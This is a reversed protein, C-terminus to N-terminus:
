GGGSGEEGGRGACGSERSTMAVLSCCMAEASAKARLSSTRRVAAGGGCGVGWGDWAWRAPRNRGDHREGGEARGIGARRRGGEGAGADGEEGCACSARMSTDPPSMRLDMVKMCTDAGGGDGWGAAMEGGRRRRWGVGGGGGQPGGKLPTPNRDTEREGLEAGEGGGMARACEGGGGGFGNTEVERGGVGVSVGAGDGGTGDGFMWGALCDVALGNRGPTRRGWHDFLGLSEARV